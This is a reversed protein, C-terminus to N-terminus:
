FTIGVKFMLMVTDDDDEKLFAHGLDMGVFFSEMLRLSLGVGASARPSEFSGMQSAISGADSFIHGKLARYVPFRVEERVVVKASGGRPVNQNEDFRPGISRPEFARVDGMGGMFVRETIGVRDASHPMGEFYISSANIFPGWFNWYHSAGARGKVFAANAHGGELSFDALMGRTPWFRNDRTDYTFGSRLTGIAYDNFHHRIRRDVDRFEAYAVRQTIYYSWSEGIPRRQTSNLGHVGQTYGRTIFNDTFLETTQSWRSRGIRRNFHTISAYQRNEGLQTQFFLGDGYGLFNRNGYGLLLFPGYVDDYGGAISASAPPNEELEILVDAKGDDPHATERARVNVSRFLGTRMLSRETRQLYSDTLAGPEREPIELEIASERMPPSLRNHIRSSLNRNRRREHIMQTIITDRHIREIDKNIVLQIDLLQLGDEGISRSYRPEIQTFVRGKDAYLEYEDKIASNIKDLNAPQMTLAEFADTKIAIEEGSSADVATVNRIYLVEGEDILITLEVTDDDPVNERNIRVKIDWYGHRTYLDRIEALDNRLLLDNFRNRILLLRRERTSMVEKIEDDGLSNNGQFLLRRIRYRDNEEISVKLTIGESTLDAVEVEVMIDPFGARAYNSIIAAYMEERFNASIVSGEKIPSIRELRSKSFHENGEFEIKLVTPNETVEYHLLHGGGTEEVNVNFRSFLNSEKLTKIDAQANEVSYLKGVRGELRHSFLNIDVGKFGTYKIENIIYRTPLEENALVISPITILILVLTALVTQKQAFRSCTEKVRETFRNTAM